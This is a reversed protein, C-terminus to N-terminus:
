YLTYHILENSSRIFHAELPLYECPGAKYRKFSNAWDTEHWKTEYRETENLM